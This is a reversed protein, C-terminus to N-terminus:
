SLGPAWPISLLSCLHSLPVLYRSLKMCPRTCRRTSSGHLVPMYLLCGCRCAYGCVFVNCAHIALFFM